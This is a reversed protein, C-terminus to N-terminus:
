PCGSAAHSVMGAAVTLPGSADGLWSSVHLVNAGFSGYGPYILATYGTEGGEILLRGGGGVWTEILSRVSGKDLPSVNDGSLSVVVERDDFDSALIANMSKVTTAYGANNLWGAVTASEGSADDIVLVRGASGIIEFAYPGSPTQNGALSADTATITYVIVDGVSLGGADFPFNRAYVHGPGPLLSHPGNAPGANVNFTITIAAIGLNDTVATIVAPPWTSLPQAGLPSHVVEPPMTDQWVAFSFVDGPATLPLWATLGQTDSAEFYYDISSGTPQGPIDATYDDGGVASMTVPQWAGGDVRYYLTAPQVVLPFQDTLVADITYPGVTDETDPLPAHAFNPGWYFVAELADVLGWGYNNDPNDHRSATERLAERIKIPGLFPARELILAAVGAVFPGSFSTGGNTTYAFDDNPDVVPVQFGQAVVDPKTRGDYTPGSSSHAAIIGNVDTSGVAVVSDGDAPAIIVDFGTGGQNGAGNVVLLGRAAAMDAAVTSAATNGDFDSATHFTVYGLSSSVLDAGQLEVWELGAM